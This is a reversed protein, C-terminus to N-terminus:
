FSKVKILKKEKDIQNVIGDLVGNVFISSKETSYEKALEIYENMTVNIPIVPFTLVEAVAMKLILIDIFAIREIEWNKAQNDILQTIESNRNIVATLLKEAFNKDEISDYYKPFFQQFRGNGEEFKNITKLIFSIIVEADNTWYISQEELAEELSKSPAIIRRFIKRWIGKDGEYDTTRNAIYEKYFDSNIIQESLEKIVDAHNAWSLKNKRIFDNFEMNVTLQKIFRNEVFRLNPYLDSESPRFKNKRLEIRDACFKTINLSLALLHFYLEYAKDFCHFMEKKIAELTKDECKFYAYIIQLIKIRILIRNIM